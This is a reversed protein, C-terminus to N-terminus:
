LCKAMMLPDHYTGEDPLYHSKCRWGETVFGLREYFHRARENRELVELEVRRVMPNAQAWELACDMLAKGIGRGRYDSHVNISLETNHETFRSTGGICQMLGILKDAAEVVLMTSNPRERFWRIVGRQAEPTDPVSGPRVRTNNLPEEAIQKLYDLLKEADDELAERICWDVELATEAVMQLAEM